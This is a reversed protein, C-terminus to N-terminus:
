NYEFWISGGGVRDTITFGDMDKPFNTANYTSGYLVRTKSNHMLFAYLLYQEEWFQMTDVNQKPFVYPLFIDHFHVFIKKDIFPLLRAVIHIVDSGEKVTHTSDIFLVDGDSLKENLEEASIDQARKTILNIDKQAKLIDSPFPEYCIIKSEDDNKISATKAILSSYGSGIEIINNPKSNRVFCYYAMADSHSFMGNKKFDEFELGCIEKTELLEEKYPLLSKLYGGMLEDVFVSPHNYIQRNRNEEYHRDLESRIPIPSYFNSPTINIGENQCCELFDWTWILPINADGNEDIINKIKRVLSVLSDDPM